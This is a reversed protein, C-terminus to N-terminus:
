NRTRRNGKFLLWGAWGFNETVILLM